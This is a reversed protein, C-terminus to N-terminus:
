RDFRRGLDHGWRAPGDVLHDAPLEAISTTRFEQARQDVPTALVQGADDGGVFRDFAGLMDDDIWVRRAGDWEHLQPVSREGPVPTLPTLPSTSRRPMTTVTPPVVDWFSRGGPVPSSAMASTVWALDRAHEPWSAYHDDQLVDRQERYVLLRTGAAVRGAELHEWAELTDEDIESRDLAARMAEIGGALFAEHQWALDLFIALQMELLQREMWPTQAPYLGPLGELVALDELGAWVPAGALRGMAAWQLRDDRRYLDLYYDYVAAVTDRNAAFGAAPDWREPDIGARAFALARWGDASDPWADALHGPLERGPLLSVAVGDRITVLFGWPSADLEVVREVRSRLERAMEDCWGSLEELQRPAGDEVEAAALARGADAALREFEAAARRFEEALQLCGEVDMAVPVRM